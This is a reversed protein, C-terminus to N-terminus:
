NEFGLIEVPGILGAALLPEDPKFFDMQTFTIKKEVGPQVDGVLRNHWVNVVTIELSNRGKHVAETIDAKYPANWLTGVEIGNVKVVAIDRVEGLDLVVKGATRLDKKKLNFSNHYVATGSFYRIGEDENETYSALESFIASAPAGRKEQFGVEWPSDIVAIRNSVEKPLRSQLGDKGADELFMVFVSQHQTLTLAVSTRDKGISYSVPETSGDEAHWVVPKKGTMRFSAEMRVTNGSLNTIWYIDGDGIRRHVFKVEPDDKSSFVFDPEAGISQLVKGAPIGSSVNKRGSEWVDRVMADFEEPDGQNGAMKEPKSGCIVVGADALVKIKRLIEMSMYRVNPDLYLIRYKMGTPVTIMGDRAEAKHLLVDPSFYDYAYGEPMEPGKSLYLGTM